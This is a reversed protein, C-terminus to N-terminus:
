AAPTKSAGATAPAPTKQSPRLSLLACVGSIAAVLPPLWLGAVPLWDADPRSQITFGVPARVVLGYAYRWQVWLLALVQAAILVSVSAVLVRKLGLSDIHFPYGASLGLASIALISGLLGPLLHRSQVAFDAYAFLAAFLVFLAAALGAGIILMQKTNTPPRLARVSLLVVTFMILSSIAVAWVMALLAPLPTDLWGTNSFDSWVTTVRGFYNLGGVVLYAIVERPRLGGQSARFPDSVEENQFGASWVFWFAGLAMLLGLWGVLLISIKRLTLLAILVVGVWVLGFPRATAAMAGGLAAALYPWRAQSFRLSGADPARSQALRSLAIVAGVLLTTGSIEWSSPTIGSLSFSTLPMLLTLLLLAGFRNRKSPLALVVGLAFIVGNFFASLARAITLGWPDALGLLETARLLSGAFFGYGPVFYSQFGKVTVFDSEFKPLCEVASLDARFAYCGARPSEVFYRPIRTDVYPALAGSGEGLFGEPLPPALGDVEPFLAQQGSILGYARAIHSPEDPASGVPSALSWALTVLGSAMIVLMAVRNKAFMLNM